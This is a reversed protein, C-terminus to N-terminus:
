PAIPFDDSTRPQMPPRKSLTVTLNQRQGDRLVVLEIRTGPKLAAVRIILRAASEIPKGNFEVLVDYRKIGAKEAASDEIVDTIVVGEAKELDLAKATKADLDKLAVGLFGREVTGTKVLQEYIDKAMNSPIAFSIGMGREGSFKAFNIGVVNGDLDLLPGGADGIQLNINTQVLNELAVLGLGSRNKATVLGAAFTRGLGMANSIGVVWDGAELADSDGLKLAPLEDADIKVVAIDTDPDTGVVEAEFKRGDALTAEVKQSNGVVNWTLIHGDESAIFGLGQAKQFHKQIRPSGPRTGPLDPRTPQPNGPPEPLPVPPRGTSGVNWWRENGRQGRPIPKNVTLVVVSPSANESIETFTKGIARLIAVANDDQAFVSTTVTLLVLLSLISIVFSDPRTKKSKIRAVDM